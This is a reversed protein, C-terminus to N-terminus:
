MPALLGSGTLSPARQSAASLAVTQVQEGIRTDIRRMAATVTQSGVGVNRLTVKQNVISGPAATASLQPQSLLLGQGTNSASGLSAALQVARFSNLLGAGQDQAPLHLDDASSDLV